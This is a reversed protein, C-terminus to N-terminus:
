SVKSAQKTKVCKSVFKRRNKGKLGQETADAICAKAAAQSGPSRLCQSMYDGRADGKLGKQKAEVSCQGMKTTQTKNGATTQAAIANTGAILALVFMSTILKKM